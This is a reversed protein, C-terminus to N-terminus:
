SAVEKQERTLFREPNADFKDLCLRSCFRYERGRYMKAYGKDPDVGMGCVPDTLKESTRGHIRHPGFGFRMMLYFAVAALLFWLLGKM